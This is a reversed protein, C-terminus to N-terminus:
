PRAQKKRSTTANELNSAQYTKLVAPVEHKAHGAAFLLGPVALSRTTGKARRKDLGDRNITTAFELFGREGDYQPLRARIGRAVAEFENVAGADRSGHGCVMVGIKEM